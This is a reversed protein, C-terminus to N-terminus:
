CNLSRLSCVFLHGTQYIRILFRKLKIIKLL